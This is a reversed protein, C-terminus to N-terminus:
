CKTPPKKKIGRKGLAGLASGLMIMATNFLTGLM